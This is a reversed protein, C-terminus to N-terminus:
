PSAPTPAPLGARRLCANISDATEAAATQRATLKWRPNTPEATVPGTYGIEALTRLFTEIDVGGTVGPLEREMVTQESLPRDAVLDNVHVAIIQEPRLKRLDDATEEACAWHFCDLMVGTNPRDVRELLSLLGDLTRVFPHKGDRWRTQPSVYELGFSIDFDALIDAAERTRTAHLEANAEADLDDSFPVVVSTARTYGLAQAVRARGPLAAIGARWEEEDVGIKQATLSCYGVRLGAAEVADTFREIGLREIDPTFRNLRLDLGAFGARAAVKVAEAPGADIAILDPMLSAFM